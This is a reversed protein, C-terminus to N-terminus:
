HVSASARAQEGDCAGAIWDADMGPAFEDLQCLPCRDGMLEGKEACAMFQLFIAFNVGLVADSPALSDVVIGKADFTLLGRERLAARIEAWHSTCIRM